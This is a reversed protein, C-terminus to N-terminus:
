IKRRRSGRRGEKGEREIQKGIKCFCEVFSYLSWNFLICFSWSINFINIGLPNCFTLDYLINEIYPHDWRWWRNLSSEVIQKIRKACDFSHQTFNKREVNGIEEMNWLWQLLTSPYNCICHVYTTNPGSHLHM